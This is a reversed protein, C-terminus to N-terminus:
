SPQHLSRRWVVSAPVPPQTVTVRCTACCACPRPSQPVRRVAALSLPERGVCRTCLWCARLRCLGGACCVRACVCRRARHRRRLRYEGRRRCVRSCPCGCRGCSGHRGLRWGCPEVGFVLDSYPAPGGAGSRRVCCRSHPRRPHPLACAVRAVTPYTVVSGRLPRACHVLSCRHQKYVVCPSGCRGDLQLVCIVCCAPPAVYM